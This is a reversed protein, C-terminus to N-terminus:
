YPSHGGSCQGHSSTDLWQTGHTGAVLLDAPWAKAEKVIAGAILEGVTETELLKTEVTVGALHASDLAKDLIERGIKILEREIEFPNGFQADSYISTEDIVYVVRLMSHQDKALGIAERLARDSTDSGDTAVLIRQYM